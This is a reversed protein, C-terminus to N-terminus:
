PQVEAPAQPPTQPPNGAQNGQLSELLEESMGDLEDEKLGTAIAVLKRHKGVKESAGADSMLKAIDKVLQRRLTQQNNLEIAWPVVAGIEEPSLPSTNPFRFAEPSTQQDQQFVENQLTAHEKQELLSEVESLCAEYEQRLNPIKSVDEIKAMLPFTEQRIKHRQNELETLAHKAEAIETDKESMQLDYMDALKFSGADLLPGIKDLVLSAARSLAEKQRKRRSQKSSFSEGLRPPSSGPQQLSEKKERLARLYENATEGKLNPIDGAEPCHNLLFTAVKVCGNRIACLAATDHNHDISTLLAQVYNSGMEHMKNILVECYYRACSWKGRSRASEAIHHFVTAGYADREVITGALSQLIKPFTKKDCNNTFLVARILPTELSSKNQAAPNAGRALLDRAVTVDGMACAWHLANNGLNDIPRDVDFHAPPEPPLINAAAPDDGATVFYDLLEDGYMTHELDSATPVPEEFDRKRKRSATSNQSLPLFDDEAMFSATEPSRERSETGNYQVSASEYGDPPPYHQTPQSPVKRPVVPQKQQKSRNSVATTHKPAPPPSRDGAVFDFIKAIRDIVGHKEALSRGENLPVWTGQYKGYGGQIKEHVGKQVERELIRTRAPKDFGAIKLIHTANVWNDSRRRMVHDGAVKLEYVPVNSYTASYIEKDAM